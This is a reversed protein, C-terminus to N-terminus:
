IVFGGYRSARRTNYTRWVAVHEFFAAFRDRALNLSDISCRRACISRLFRAKYFTPALRRAHTAKGWSGLTCQATVTPIVSAHTKLRLAIALGLRHDRTLCASPRLRLLSKRVCGTIHASARCVLSPENDSTHSGDRGQLRVLAVRAM